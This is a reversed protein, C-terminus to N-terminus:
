GCPKFHMIQHSQLDSIIPNIIQNLNQLQYHKDWLLNQSQVSVVLHHCCQQHLAPQSPSTHTYWHLHHHTCTEPFVGVKYLCSRIISCLRCVLRRESCSFLIGSFSTGLYPLVTSLCEMSQCVPGQSQCFPNHSQRVHNKSHSKYQFHMWPFQLSAAPVSLCSEPISLCMGKASLCMGRLSLHMRHLSLYAGPSLLCSQTTSLHTRQISLCM